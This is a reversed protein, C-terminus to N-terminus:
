SYFNENFQLTTDPQNGVYNGAFGSASVGVPLHARAIDAITDRYSLNISEPNISEMSLPLLTKFTRSGNYTGDGQIFHDIVAAIAGTSALKSFFLHPNNIPYLPSLCAVSKIGAKSFKALLEIRAKNSSPPPPLDPLHDRDGEISIHVRLNCM